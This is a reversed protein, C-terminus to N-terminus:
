IMINIDATNDIKQVEKLMDMTIKDGKISKKMANATKKEAGDAFTAIKNAAKTMISAIKNQRDIIKQQKAINDTQNKKLELANYEVYRAITDMDDALTTKSYYFYYICERIIPIASLIVLAAPVGILLGAGISENVSVAEPDCSVTAYESKMLKSQINAKVDMLKRILSDITITATRLTQVPMNIPYVILSYIVVLRLRLKMELTLLTLMIYTFIGGKRQFAYYEKVCKDIAEMQTQHTPTSVASPLSDLMKVIAKSYKLLDKENEFGKVKSRASKIMDNFKKEIASLMTMKKTDKYDDNDISEMIYRRLEHDKVYETHEQLLDMYLKKDETTLTM